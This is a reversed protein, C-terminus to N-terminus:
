SLYLAEKTGSPLKKRYVKTYYGIFRCFGTTPRHDFKYLHFAEMLCETYQKAISDTATLLFFKNYLMLYRTLLKCFPSLLGSKLINRLLKCLCKHDLRTTLHYCYGCGVKATHAFPIDWPYIGYMYVGSLWPVLLM